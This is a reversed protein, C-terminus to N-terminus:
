GRLGSRVLRHAADRAASTSVPWARLSRRRRRSACGRSRRRRRATRRCPSAASATRTAPPRPPCRGRTAVFSPTRRRTAACTPRASRSTTSSGTARPARCAGRRDGGPPRDGTYRAPEWWGFGDTNLAAVRLEDHHEVVAAYGYLPLRRSGPLPRSAPLLTRLHGVPLVAAVPLLDAEVDVPRNKADLALARRGPLHMLTTGEPIPILELADLAVVKGGSRAAPRFGGLVELEGDPRAVVPRM